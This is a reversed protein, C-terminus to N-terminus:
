TWVLLGLCDQCKMSKLLQFDTFARPSSSSIAFIVCGYAIFLINGPWMNDTQHSVIINHRYISLSLYQISHLFLNLKKRLQKAIKRRYESLSLGSLLTHVWPVWPVYSQCKRQDNLLESENLTRWSFRNSPRSQAVLGGLVEQHLGQRM